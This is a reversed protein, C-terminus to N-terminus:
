GLTNPMRKKVKSKSKRKISVYMERLLDIASSPLILKAIKVVLMFTTTRIEVILVLVRKFSMVEKVIKKDSEIIELSKKEHSEELQALNNLYKKILLVDERDKKSSPSQQYANARYDKFALVEQLTSSKINKYICHYSPNEIIERVSKNYEKYQSNHNEIRENVIPKESDGVCIYDIDHTDRIGNLALVAGTDLSFNSYDDRINMEKNYEDILISFKKPYVDCARNMWEQSNKNFVANAVWKVEKHTDPFHVHPFTEEQKLFPSLNLKNRIDEKIDRINHNINNKRFFVVGISNGSIREGHFPHNMYTTMNNEDWHSEHAYQLRVWQRKGAETVSISKECVIEAISELKMSLEKMVQSSGDGSIAAYISNDLHIYERMLEDVVKSSVGANSLEYNSCKFLSNHSESIPAFNNNNNLHMQIAIDLEIPIYKFALNDENLHNQFKKEFISFDDSDFYIKIEKYFDLTKKDIENSIFIDSLFAETIERIIQRAWNSCSFKKQPTSTM